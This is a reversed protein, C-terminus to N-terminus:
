DSVLNSKSDQDFVLVKTLAAANKTLRYEGSESVVIGKEQLSRLVKRVTAWSFNTSKSISNITNHGRKIALFVAIEKEDMNVVTGEEILMIFLVSILLLLSLSFLSPLPTFFLLTFISILVVI